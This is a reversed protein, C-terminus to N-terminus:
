SNYKGESGFLIIKRKIVTTMNKVALQILPMLDPKTSNDMVEKISHLYAGRVETNVNFKCIGLSISKKVMAEPIGSAGHLVLPVNVNSQIAELRKFDLNPDNAYKGHVNGICVALSSVGTKTVYEYALEPSTMKAEYEAVSLGDEEGALKGYEGEVHADHCNAMDVVSKTFVLNKEFSLDSGDAMISKIGKALAIAISEKEQSHDLHIAVPISADKAAALCAPIIRNSNWKMSIPHLQVIVPSKLDEAANIVASLGELNYINFAGIAYKGKQAKLLLEKSNSLM